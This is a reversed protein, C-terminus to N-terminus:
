AATINKYRGGSNRMWPEVRAGTRRRPPLVALPNAGPTPLILDAPTMCDFVYAGERSRISSVLWEKLFYIILERVHM